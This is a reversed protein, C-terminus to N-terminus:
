WKHAPCHCKECFVKTSLKCGCGRVLKKTEVDEISKETNCKDKIYLPCSICISYRTKALLKADESINSLINKKSYGEIIDFLNIM